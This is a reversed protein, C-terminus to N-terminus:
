SSGCCPPSEVVVYGIWGACGGSPRTPAFREVIVRGKIYNDAWEGLACLIEDADTHLVEAANQVDAFAPFPGGDPGQAPWCPRVWKVGVTVAWIEDRCKVPGAGPFSERPGRDIKAPWTALFGCCDDPPDEVSVFSDSIPVSLAGVATTRIEDCLDFLM